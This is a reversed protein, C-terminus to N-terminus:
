IHGCIVQVTFAAIPTMSVHAFHPRTMVLVRFLQVYLQCVSLITLTDVADKVYSFFQRSDQQADSIPFKCFSQTCFLTTPFTFNKFM